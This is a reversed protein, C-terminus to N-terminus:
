KAYLVSRCEDPMNKVPVPQPRSPPLPQLLWWDLAPDDCGDGRPLPDQSECYVSGAPCDIRLHFHEHHGYWPRIKQLWDRQGQMHKCLDLKVHPNVFIRDVQPILAAKKLIERQTNSWLRLDLGDREANLMSPAGPSEHSENKHHHQTELEFWVDADLGSQHSHHGSPMPGGRPQSLDGIQLRGYGRQHVFGAIEQLVRILHPHGYYRNRHLNMVRHGAGETALPEAGAICGNSTQGIAHPPSSSPRIQDPWPNAMCYNMGFM